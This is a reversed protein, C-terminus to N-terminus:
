GFDRISDQIQLNEVLETIDRTVSITYHTDSTGGNTVTILLICSNGCTDAFTKDSPNLYIIDAGFEEDSKFLPDAVYQEWENIPMSLNKIIAIQMDPNGKKPILTAYTPM